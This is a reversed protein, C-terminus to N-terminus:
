IYKINPDVRICM